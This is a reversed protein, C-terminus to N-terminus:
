YATFMTGLQYDFADPTFKGYGSSPYFTLEGFYICGQINYLDVRVFPFDSSLKAAVHKMADFNNPCEIARSNPYTCHVGLWQWSMDYYDQHHSDFRGTDVQLCHPQGNFCFFKYDTLNDYENGNNDNLYKEIIIRRKSIDYYAWERGGSKQKKREKGAGWSSLKKRIDTFDASQKDKVVIVNLGGGGDTTKIVFQNPLADFDIDEIRDYIGYLENLIHGLGKSEVYKRVEYKDVCQHMVPNRYKMKYLQLKETFRKPHKFDPFFGMKIRYQLRLMISDPIFKFLHLIKFRMQRSRIIKKYDMMDTPHENRLTLGDSKM